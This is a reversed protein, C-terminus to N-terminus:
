SVRGRRLGALGLLGSGLLWFSGPDPVFTPNGGFALVDPDHASPESVNFLTISDVGFGATVGLDTLDFWAVGVQRQEGKYLYTYIPDGDHTLPEPESYVIESGSASPTLGLNVAEMSFTFVGLDYGPGNWLVDHFGVKVWDGPWVVKVGTGFDLGLLTAELRERVSGGITEPYAYFTGDFDVIENPWTADPGWYWTTTDSTADAEKLGGLVLCISLAFGLLAVRMM